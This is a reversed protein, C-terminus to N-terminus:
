YFHQQESLIDFPDTTILGSIKLKQEHKKIHNRKEFNLFYKEDHEHWRARTLIVIGKVKEEYFVEFNEKASDLIELNLNNPDREFELKAEPYKEQLYNEKKNKEKARHKSHQIAHPRINYKLWDWINRNDSLDKCGEALWIPIKSKLNDVYEEDELLACNM